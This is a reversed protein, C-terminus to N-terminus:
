RSGVGAIQLVIRAALSAGDRQLERHLSAFRKSLWERYRPDDLANLAAQAINDATADDQLLEPVVFRGSLINPLGVYPLRLKKKVLRYTSNSVRYSIVMPRKALAVELTATGSAALVLDSAVMAERAHGFLVRIPLDEAKEAYLHHRFREMTPRTAIPVVFQADPRSALLRRMTAIFLPAMYDVESVRSGPLVAFVPVDQAVRLVKRAAERDPELDFNDAYPHGVYTVPVGAAKYLPAEMPFLALVHDVARKIKHIREGRWAWISPSVYHVTRVGGRKLATELGLNFDPADIGIFVHPREDLLARKLGRRIRLLRPLSRIVEAYGRVALAEQPYLSNLGEGQMRPGGIGVFEIDRHLAKLAAMLAAGLGDGSAEGAVM